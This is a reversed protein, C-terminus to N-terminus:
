FHLKKHLEAALERGRFIILAALLLFSVGGCIISLYRVEVIGLVFLLAPIMGIISVLMYYIMYDQAKLKQVRTIIGFSVMGTLCIAPFAYDLSWGRWGTFYDWLVCGTSFIAIQWVGNKLLNHRKLFGISLAVWMSLTIGLVVPFWDRSPTFVMNIVVAVVAAAICTFSFWQFFKRGSKEKETQEPFQGTVMEVPVGFERLMRFFNREINKSQFASAFSFTVDDDFSCMSLQLKPTSIFVGFRQIYPRYAEPMDVVGVNSLIATVDKEAFQNALLLAPNKLELPVFRIVPHQELKMYMSMHSGLREQTLEQKFYADVSKIIDEFEYDGEPFQYGPEIWGFFNLMSESPFFKRLNVPVMLVIDRQGRCMEKHIACLLVSSLFVTVSVGYEKAKVRLARSSVVGETVNLNGYGAKVGTIRCPKRKKVLSGSGKEPKKYYKSFSDNELDHITVDADTIAIDPLGEAGHCIVLYDKVLEKLFQLAGTGDTLAHYVEFNIRKRYYSVQFLLNKRDRIYLNMCPPDKEASVAAELDSNELYYWFFGKRMVSRYVPYKELTRDLATQLAEGDINEKLECYFRFVRTDRRGSTSPFIKAANDLRRWRAGKMETM